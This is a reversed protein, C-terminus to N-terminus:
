SCLGQLFNKKDFSVHIEVLRTFTKKVFSNKNFYRKLNRKRDAYICSGFYKRLLDNNEFFHRAVHDNEDPVVNFVDITNSSIGENAVFVVYNESNYKKLSAFVHERNKEIWKLESESEIYRIFLTPERITKYFRLIRREYKERFTAFQKHFQEYKSFDHVFEFDYKTNKYCYLQKSSQAFLTEDFFHEFNSDIADIVGRFDTILWDFPFSASRLGFRELEMAVSCFHGLSIYHAYDIPSM